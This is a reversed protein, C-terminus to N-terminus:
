APWHLVAATEAESLDLLYRCTVVLRLREPLGDVVGLLETRREGARSWGARWDRGGDHRGPVTARRTPSSACCGRGFRRRSGSAASPATRRSSRKKSPTTPTLGDRWCPPPATRLRRIGPWWNKTRTLTARGPARLSNGTKRLGTTWNRRTWHVARWGSM